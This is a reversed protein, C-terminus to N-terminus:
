NRKMPNGSAIASFAIIMVIVVGAATRFIIKQQLDQVGDLLKGTGIMGIVKGDEYIPTYAAIAVSGGKIIKGAYNNGNELVEEKIKPDEIKTGVMRGKGTASPAGAIRENGLFFTIRIGSKALIKDSLDNLEKDRNKLKAALDNKPYTLEVINKAAEVEELSYTKITNELYNVMVTNVIFGITTTMVVFSIMLPLLMRESRSFNVCNLIHYFIIGVAAAGFLIGIGYILEPADKGISGRSLSYFSLALIIFIFIFGWERGEKKSKKLVCEKERCFLRCYNKYALFAVPLGALIVIPFYISDKPVLFPFAGVLMLTYHWGKEALGLVLLEFGLTALIIAWSVIQTPNLLAQTLVTGALVFLGSGFALYRLNRSSLFERLAVWFIVLSAITFAFGIIFSVVWLNFNTLM